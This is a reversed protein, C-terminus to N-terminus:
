NRGWERCPEAFECDKCMFSAKPIFIKNKIGSLVTEALHFFRKHDEKNRKTEFTLMKPKKNKVFNIIKLLKPPRHYLTEYTYSYATLQIHDDADEQSMSQASTKFEVITDDKEICDFFGELNVGPGNGTAPDLLPITFPVESGKVEKVPNRFYLGLFEKGLVTLEMESEGDKFRIDSEQKEVYWDSDFIRHLTELTIGNGNMEQKHFWNIASHVASGFVLASSKFPRPLRDVYNFRYKLSCLLYLNIQSASLHDM